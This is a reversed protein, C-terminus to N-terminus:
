DYHRGRNPSNLPLARWRCDEKTPLGPQHRRVGMRGRLRTPRFPLPDGSHRAANLPCSGSFAVLDASQANELIEAVFALQAETFEGYVSSSPSGTTLASVAEAFDGAGVAFDSLGNGPWWTSPMDRLEIWESRQEDSLRELDIAHGVEHMLVAAVVEVTADPEVHVVISKDESRTVGLFDAHDEAYGIQWDSLVSRFDFSITAEAAAGIETPFGTTLLTQQTGLVETPSDSSTAGVLVLAGVATLGVLLGAALVIRRESVSQARQVSDPAAILGHIERRLDSETYGLSSSLVDLDRDRLVLDSGPEQGRLVYIMSVYRALVDEVHLSDFGVSTDGVKLQQRDIDLILESRQPVVPGANVEYLGVLHEIIRDDLAVRGREANELYSPTFMGNSRRAMEVIDVGQQTRREIMLAGLRAPPVLPDVAVPVWTAETM